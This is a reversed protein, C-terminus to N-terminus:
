VTTKAHVTGPKDLARRTPELPFPISNTYNSSGSSRLSATGPRALTRRCVTASRRGTHRGFGTPDDSVRRTNGADHSRERPRRRKRGPANHARLTSFDDEGDKHPEEFLLEFIRAAERLLANTGDLESMEELM